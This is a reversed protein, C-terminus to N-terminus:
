LQTIKLEKKNKKSLFLAADEVSFHTTKNSHGRRSNNESMGSTGTQVTGGGNQEM